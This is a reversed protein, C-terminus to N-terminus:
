TKLESATKISQLLASRKEAERPQYINEYCYAELQLCLLYDQKKDEEEFLTSVTHLYELAEAYEGLCVMNQAIKLQITGDASLNQKSQSLYFATQLFYISKQYDKDEHLIDALKLLTRLLGESDGTELYGTEMKSLIKRCEPRNDLLELCNLKEQNIFNLWHINQLAEFNSEAKEFEFMAEDIKGAALLRTGDEYQLKALQYINERIEPSM